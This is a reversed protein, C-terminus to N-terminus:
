KFLKCCIFKLNNYDKFKGTGKIYKVIGIGVNRESKRDLKLWFKDGNNDNASCVM